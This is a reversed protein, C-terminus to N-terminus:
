RNRKQKQKKNKKPPPTVSQMFSLTQAGGSRGIAKHKIIIICLSLLLSINLRRM